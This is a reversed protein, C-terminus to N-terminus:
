WRVSYMVRWEGSAAAYTAPPLDMWRTSELGRGIMVGFLAGASGLLLAGGIMAADENGTDESAAIAAGTLGGVLFGVAFGRVAHGRQYRALELRQIDAVEVAVTNAGSQLYVTSGDQRVFTGMVEGDGLHARLTAGQAVTETLDAATALSPSVVALLVSLARLFM